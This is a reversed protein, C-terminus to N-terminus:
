GELLEIAEDVVRILVQWYLDGAATRLLLTTSPRSALAVVREFDADSQEVALVDIERPGVIGMNPIFRLHGPTIECRGTSWETGINLVRGQVSRLGSRAQHREIARRDDRRGANWPM